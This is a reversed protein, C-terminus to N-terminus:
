RRKKNKKKNKDKAFFRAQDEDSIVYPPEELVDGDTSKSLDIIDWRSIVQREKDYILCHDEADIRELMGNIYAKSRRRGYEDIENRPTAKYIDYKEAM